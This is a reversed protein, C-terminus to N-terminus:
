YCAATTVGVNAAQSCSKNTCTSYMTGDRYTCSRAGNSAVWGGPLTCSSSCAGGSGTCTKATRYWKGYSTWGSPCTAGSFLCLIDGGFDSMNITGGADICEQQTHDGNVITPGGGGGGVVTACSWNTGDWQLAASSGTCIPPDPLDNLEACVWAGSEFRLSEQDACQLSALTDTGGSDTASQWVSGDCILTIQSGDLDASANRRTHGEEAATCPDGPKNDWGDLAAHAPAVLAMCACLLLLPKNMLTM